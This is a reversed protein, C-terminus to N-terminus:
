DLTQGWIAVAHYDKTYRIRNSADNYVQQTYVRGYPLYLDRAVLPTSRYAITMREDSVIRVFLDYDFGTQLDPYAGPIKEFISRRFLMSGLQESPTDTVDTYARLLWADGGGAVPCLSLDADDEIQIKFRELNVVDGEQCVAVYRGHAWEIGKNFTAGDPEGDGMLFIETDPPISPWDKHNLNGYYLITLECQEPQLKLMPYTLPYINRDQAYIVGEPLTDIDEDRVNCKEFFQCFTWMQPRYRVAPNVGLLKAVGTTYLATEPWISAEWRPQPKTYQQVAQHVRGWGFMDHYSDPWTDGLLISANYRGMGEVQREFRGVREEFSQVFSVFPTTVHALLETDNPVVTVLEHINVSLSRTPGHFHM